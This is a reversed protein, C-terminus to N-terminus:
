YINITKALTELVNTLEPNADLANLSENVRELEDELRVKRDALQQRISPKTAVSVLCEKTTNIGVPYM